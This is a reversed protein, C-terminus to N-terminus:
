VRELKFVNDIAVGLRKKLPVKIDRGLERFFVDIDCEVNSLALKIFGDGVINRNAENPISIDISHNKSLTNSYRTFLEILEDNSFNAIAIKGKATFNLKVNM